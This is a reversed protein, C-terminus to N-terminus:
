LLVKIEHISWADSRPHQLCDDYFFIVFKAVM